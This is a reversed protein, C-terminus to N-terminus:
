RWEDVSVTAKHHAGMMQWYGNAEGGVVVPFVFGCRIGFKEASALRGSESVALFDSAWVAKKERLALDTFRASPLSHDLSNSIRIFEDFRAPQACNWISSQPVGKPQGPAFTGIRGLMWQGYDCIRELCDQLTSESTASENATRALADLLETLAAKQRSRSCGTSGCIVTKRAHAASRM